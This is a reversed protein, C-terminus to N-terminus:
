FFITDEMQIEIKERAVLHILKYVQLYGEANM